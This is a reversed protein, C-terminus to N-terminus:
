TGATGLVLCALPGRLDYRVSSGWGQSLDVIERETMGGPQAAHEDM